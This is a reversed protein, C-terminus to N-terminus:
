TKARERLERAWQDLNTLTSELVERSAALRRLQKELQKRGRQLRSKATGEPVGVVEGIEATSMQEWYFLELAVQCELPVKRLAELLLRHERKEALIQSLSPAMDAVSLEEFDAPAARSGAKESYHKRLINHAAGFLYSRFDAGERLREKGEVCALFTSQILDPAAEDNVKNQFFRAVKTYYREFLSLGAERDGARWRDLLLHDDTMM